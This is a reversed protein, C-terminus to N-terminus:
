YVSFTVDLFSDPAIHIDSTVQWHFISIDTRTATIDGLALPV